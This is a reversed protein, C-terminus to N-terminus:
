ARGRAMGTTDGPHDELGGRHHEQGRPRFQLRQKKFLVQDLLQLRAVVDQQAVVLAERVDQDRGFVGIRLDLLM